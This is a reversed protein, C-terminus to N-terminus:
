KSRMYEMLQQSSDFQAVIRSCKADHTAVAVRLANLYNHLSSLTDTFRTVEDMPEQCWDKIGKHTKKIAKQADLLINFFSGDGDIVESGFNAMLQDGKDMILEACKDIFSQEDRIADLTSEITKLLSLSRPFAAFHAASSARYSLSAILEASSVQASM